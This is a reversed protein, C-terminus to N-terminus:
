DLLPFMTPQRRTGPIGTASIYMAHLFSPSIAPILWCFLLILAPSLGPTVRFFSRLLSCVTRTCQMPKHMLKHTQRPPPHPANKSNFCDSLLCICCTVCFPRIRYSLLLFFLLSLTRTYVHSFLSKIAVHPSAVSNFLGPVKATSRVTAEFMNNGFM